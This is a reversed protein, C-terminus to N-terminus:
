SAKGIEAEMGRDAWSCVSFHNGFLQQDGGDAPTELPFVHSDVGESM